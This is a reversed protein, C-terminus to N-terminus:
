SRASRVDTKDCVNETSKLLVGRTRNMGQTSMDSYWVVECDVGQTSTSYLSDTWAKIALVM